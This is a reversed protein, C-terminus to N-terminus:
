LNLRCGRVPAKSHPFLLFDYNDFTPSYVPHAPIEWDWNWQLCQIDHCHHPTVSDSPLRHWKAAPTITKLLPCSLVDDHLVVACYAGSVLTHPQVAHHSVVEEHCFFVFYMV